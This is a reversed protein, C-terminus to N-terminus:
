GTLHHIPALNKKWNLNDVFLFKDFLILIFSIFIPKLYKFFVDFFFNNIDDYIDEEKWRDILYQFDKNEGRWLWQSTSDCTWTAKGEKHLDGEFIEGDELSKDKASRFLM